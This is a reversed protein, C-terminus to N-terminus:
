KGNGSCGLPFQLPQLFLILVQIYVVLFISDGKVAKSFKLKPQSQPEVASHDVQATVSSINLEETNRKEEEKPLSHPFFWIPLSSLFNVIGCILFGIWWAGVWRTDKPNITINDKLFLSLSTSLSFSWVIPKMKKIWQFMNYVKTFLVILIWKIALM